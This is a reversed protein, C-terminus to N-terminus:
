KMSPDNQPLSQVEMLRKIDRMRKPDNIAKMFEVSTREVKSNIAQKSIFDAYNGPNGGAKMYKRLFTAGLEATFSGDRLSSRTAERLESMLERQAFQTGRMKHWAEMAKAERIPRMGVARAAIGIGKTTDANIVNGRRDTAYGSYLEIANRGQRWISYNAAIEAIQQPNVGENTKLSEITTTFAGWANKVLTASPTDAINWLGPVRHMNVDGRSTLAIGDDAGFMKPLNSLTGYLFWDAADDGIRNRIGDIPNVTGDYNSAFFENFQKFGPVSQGGFTAAQTAYQVALAGVQKNEIMSYLRQFYNFAFTQFLGLPMGVAGQFMRPRNNPRYDGIVDNAFKYAFAYRNAAQEIGMKEAIHHGTMFSVARSIEESKDSIFSMKDTFGKVLSEAYGQRPETITKMMEAVDQKFYGLDAAEKYVHSKTFMDHMASTVARTADFMGVDGDVSRGFSAIRAGHAEATEFETRKLAKIVGPMTAALSTLNLVAHGVEMFRLTLLSTFQNVKAMHQKMSPPLSEQYTRNIYDNTDTFPNFDGLQEDLQKFSAAEEKTPQLKKQGYPSVANIYRSHMANLMRDYFTEINFYTMGILDNPHLTQNGFLAAVYHQMISQGKSRTADDVQNYMLRAHNIQPEFYTAVTRRPLSQFQKNIAFVIDDLVDTGTAIIDPDVSKGTRKGTQLMPDSFDLMKDFAKDQLFFYRGMDKNTVQILAEGAENIIQAARSNAEAVTRGTAMSRLTGSKDVLYVIEERSLNKPPVWWDRTRTIGRGAAKNLANTNTLATRGLEQVSNAVELAGPTIALPKYQRVGGVKSVPAPMRANEPMAKGFYAQWRQRNAANDMLKFVAKGEEEALEASVDWGMRRAHVYLNFIELDAKNNAARISNFVPVYPEFVKGILEEGLRSNMINTTHAGQMAPVEGAAFAQSTIAGRNRQAGEILTDTQMVAKTAGDIRSDLDDTLAKILLAGDQDAARMVSLTTDRLDATRQVLMERTHNEASLPKKILLTPRADAPISLMNGRLKMNQGLFKGIEPFFAGEQAARKVHELNKLPLMEHGEQYLNEFLSVLPHADGTATGPLNLSRIIDQQTLKQTETLKIIAKDGISADAMKRLRRYEIFKSRVSGFEVDEISKWGQPLRIRDLTQEGHKEYAALVMDLRTHHDGHSINIKDGFPTFDDVSRQAAAYGGSRQFATLSEFGSVTVQEGVGRKTNGKVIFEFEDGLGGVIMVVDDVPVRRIIVQTGFAKAINPNSTMSVVDNTPKATESKREGRLLPITGDEDALERLRARMPEYANHIQTFRADGEKSWERLKSVSSSGTWRKIEKQLEQPLNKYIPSGRHGTKYHWDEGMDKLLNKFYDPSHGVEYKGLVQTVNVGSIKGETVQPVIWHFDDTVGIVARTTGYIADSAIEAKYMVPEITTGAQKTIRREGDQFLPKRNRATSVTGDAENIFYQLSEIAEIEDQAATIKATAESTLEGKVVGEANLKAIKDNLKVVQMDRKAMTETIATPSHPLSEISKTGLLITPDVELGNELGKIQKTSLKTRMTVNPYPSDMGMNGLQKQIAGQYSLVDKNIVTARVSADQAEISTSQMVDDLSKNLSVNQLAYNTVGIDRNGPRFITEDLPVGDLKRAESAIPAVSQASARVARKMFALEAGIFPITVGVGLTIHDMVTFDDPYLVDSENMTALVGMEFAVTEKLTDLAKTKYAKNVLVKRIPDSVLDLAGREALFVDRAKVGEVLKGYSKGSTFISDIAKDYKTGRTVLKHLYSGARIAKTAAMGPIFMGILDGALQAGEKNRDYYSGFRPWVAQMTNSLDEDDLLGFTQGITDTFGAVTAPVAFAAFDTVKSEVSATDIPTAGTATVRQPVNDFFGVSPATDAM